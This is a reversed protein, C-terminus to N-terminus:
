RSDADARAPAPAPTRRTLDVPRGVARADGRRSHWRRASSPGVAVDLDHRLGCSPQTGLGLHTDLDAPFERLLSGVVRQVRLPVDCCAGSAAAVLADHLMAVDVVDGHREIRTLASVIARTCSACKPCAEDHALAAHARALALACVGTGHVTFAGSGLASGTEAFADVDLAIDLADGRIVPADGDPVVCKVAEGSAPGGGLREVLVRLSTGLPLEYVGPEAIDGALAFLMTGPARVTGFARFAEAGSTLVTAVHAFTEVDDVLVNRLDRRVVDVRDVVRVDCGAAFGADGLAAIAAGLAEVTDADRTDIAVFIAPADLALAAVLAGELVVYPNADLLVQHKGAAPERGAAVAVIADARGADRVTRWRRATPFAEGGRDRLGAHDLARIIADPGILAAAALADGGRRALHDALARRPALLARAGLDDLDTV